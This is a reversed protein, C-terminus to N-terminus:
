WRWLRGGCAAAARQAPEAGSSGRGCHLGEKTWTVGGGGARAAYDVSHSLITTIVCRCPFRHFPPTILVSTLWPNPSGDAHSLDRRSM